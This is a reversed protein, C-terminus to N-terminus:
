SDNLLTLFVKLILETANQKKLCQTKCMALGRGEWM